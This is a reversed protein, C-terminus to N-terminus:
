WAEREAMLVTSCCLLWGPGRPVSSKTYCPLRSIVNLVDLPRGFWDLRKFAFLLYSTAAVSRAARAFSGCYSRATLHMGDCESWSMANTQCDWSSTVPSEHNVSPHSSPRDWIRQPFPNIDDIILVFLHTEGKGQVLQLNVDWEERSLPGGKGLRRMGMPRVHVADNNHCDSLFFRPDQREPIRGTSLPKVISLVASGRLQDSILM